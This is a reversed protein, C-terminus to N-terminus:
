VVMLCERSQSRLIGKNELLRHVHMITQLAITNIGVAICSENYM